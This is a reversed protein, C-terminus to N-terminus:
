QLLPEVVQNSIMFCALDGLLCPIVTGCMFAGASFGLLRCLYRGWYIQRHHWLALGGPVTNLLGTLDKVLDSLVMCQPLAGEQPLPHEALHRPLVHRPRSIRTVGAAADLVVGPNDFSYWANTITQGTGDSSSLATGASVLTAKFTHNLHDTGLLVTRSSDPTNWFRVEGAFLLKDRDLTLQLADPKAPLPTLVESLVVRSPVTDLMHVFLSACTSAFLAPSSAFGWMVKGEDSGFIWADSNTTANTSVVLPNCTTNAIYQSAVSNDFGVPMGYFHAVSQMNSTDNLNPVVDPLPVHMVSGFTHIATHMALDEQPQLVGPTNPAAADIHGGGFPISPGGCNEIATIAALALVDAFSVYQNAVPGVICLTNNFGDAVNEAQAQEEPFRISVDLRGLHSFFRLPTSVVVPLAPPESSRAGDLKTLGLKPVLIVTDAVHKLTLGLSSTIPGHTPPRPHATTYFSSPHSLSIPWINPWPEDKHVHTAHAYASWADANRTGGSGSISSVIGAKRAGRCEGWQHLCRHHFRPPHLALSVPTFPSPAVLPPPSRPLSLSLSLTPIPTPNSPIPPSRVAVVPSVAPERDCRVIPSVTRLTINSAFMPVSFMQM